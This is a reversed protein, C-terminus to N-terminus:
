KMDSAQCRSRGATCCGRARMGFKCLRAVSVFFDRMLILLWLVLTILFTQTRGAHKLLTSPFSSPNRTNQVCQTQSLKFLFLTASVCLREGSPIKSASLIRSYLLHLKFSLSITLQTTAVATWAHTACILAFRGVRSSENTMLVSFCRCNQM